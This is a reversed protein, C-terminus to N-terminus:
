GEERKATFGSVFGWENNGIISEFDKRSVYGQKVPYSVCHWLNGNEISILSATYGEGWMRALIYISYDEGIWILTGLEVRSEESVQNVETIKTIQM